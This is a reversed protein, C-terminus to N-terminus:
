VEAAEFTLYYDKLPEFFESAKTDKDIAIQLSGSPTAKAFDANEGEKGYVATLSANKNYGNDTIANCRFKARITM